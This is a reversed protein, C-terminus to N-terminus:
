SAGFAGAIALLVVLVTFDPAYASGALAAAAGLLGVAGTVREGVRDAALGWPLLTLMAGVGSVGLMVGVETLSLHYRDRLAPALVALGFLVAAQSAQAVTGVALVVWRRQMEPAACRSRRGARVGRSAARRRSSCACTRAAPPPPLSRQARAGSARPSAPSS